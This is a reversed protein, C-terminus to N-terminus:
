EVKYQLMSLLRVNFIFIKYFNFRHIKFCKKFELISCLPPNKRDM